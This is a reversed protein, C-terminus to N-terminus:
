LANPLQRCRAGYELFSPLLKILNDIVSIGTGQYYDRSPKKGLQNRYPHIPLVKLAQEIFPPGHGRAPGQLREGTGAQRPPPAGTGEPAPGEAVGPDGHAAIGTSVTGRTQRLIVVYHLMRDWGGPPATARSCGPRRGFVGWFRGMCDTAGTAM